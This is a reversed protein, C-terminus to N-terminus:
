RIRGYLDALELASLAADWGKNGAKTGARQLAQEVTDTTLVGFAVPMPADRAVAALGRASEGAVYEFHPTEGRIVCGLAIVGDHRALASVRRVVAPLEFAGPVWYVDIADEAVGHRVLCDRAGALLQNTILSNFRSVVVAFRKGEGRLHGAIESM